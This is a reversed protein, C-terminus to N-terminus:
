AEKINSRVAVIHTVPFVLWLEDVQRRHIGGDFESIVEQWAVALEHEVLTLFTCARPQRPAM